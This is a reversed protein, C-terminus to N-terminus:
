PLLYKKVGWRHLYWREKTLAERQEESLQDWNLATDPPTFGDPWATNDNYLLVLPLM